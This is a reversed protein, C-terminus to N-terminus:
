VKDIQLIKCIEDFLTDFAACNRSLISEAALLLKTKFLVFYKIFEEDFYYFWLYKIWLSDEMHTM